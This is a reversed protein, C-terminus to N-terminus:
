PFLWRLVPLLALGILWGFAFAAVLLLVANRATTFSFPMPLHGKTAGKVSACLVTGTLVPSTLRTRPRGPPRVSEGVGGSVPVRTELVNMQCLVADDM